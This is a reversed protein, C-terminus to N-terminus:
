DMAGLPIFWYPMRHDRDLSHTTTYPPIQIVPISDLLPGGFHSRDYDHHHLQGAVSGERTAAVIPFPVTRGIQGRLRRSSRVERRSLAVRWDCGDVLDRWVM